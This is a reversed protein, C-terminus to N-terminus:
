RPIGPSSRDTPSRSTTCPIGPHARASRLRCRRSRRPRRSPRSSRRRRACTEPRRPRGLAGRLQQLHRALRQQLPMACARAPLRTPSMECAIWDCASASRIRPPARRQHPVADPPSARPAAPASSRAARRPGLSIAPCTSAISGITFMPPGFHTVCAVAPRHHRLVARQAGVELVGHRDPRVPGLDERLESSQYSVLIPNAFSSPIWTSPVTTSGSGLAINRTSSSFPCLTSACMEPLIRICKM